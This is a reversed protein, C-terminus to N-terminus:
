TTRRIRALHDRAEANGPDLQLAREFEAVADNLKGQVALARGLLDHAAPDDPRLRAAERAHLLAQDTDGNDFLANALNRQAGGNGPDIQVARRFVAIAENMKGSAILAIGLNALANMDGPRVKLYAQYHVIAEPFEQRAFLAEALLNHASIDSPSMTLIQRFEAAAEPWRQQRAYARGIYEHASLVELVIPQKRIFERFHEIAEDLKGQNFLEVALGYHARPADRIAERLHGIAEEHKGAAMLEVGMLHHATGTPYRELTTQALLFSSAYERNRAFTGAALATAVVALLSAGAWRLARPGHGAADPLFRRRVADWVLTMGVLVLVVIALLPLYMRREAGVETGIPVISSTPALTIFFWAGLFGLKPRRVLAVATIALLFVVGLAYPLVARLTLPVPWGYNFVLSRPWLARRLYEAIMVTQNLLYTWTATDTSYGASHIRPGSWMVAVLVLWTAALLSYFRWRARLSGKLSEFVFIADYMVVVVPATVMSEKCAMGLACAVVAAAQWRVARSSSIARISAYLTALYCLAMMSETRQTLYDVVESNLPHLTWILAAAFGLTVSRSGFRRRLSALEFTRRVVGFVLLGSLLHVAISWLHYGRVDLGGLAYNIAFSINVVPRGAVPSEREASLVSSNWLQRIQQNEVIAVQDDYVFPGTLSNSYTLLGAVVLVAALSSVGIGPRTSEAVASKRSTRTRSPKV